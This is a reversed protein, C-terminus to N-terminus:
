EELNRIFHGDEEHSQSNVSADDYEEVMEGESVDFETEEMEKLEDLAERLSDWAQDTEEDEGRRHFSIAM